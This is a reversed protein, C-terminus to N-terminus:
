RAQLARKIMFEVNENANKYEIKIHPYHKKWIRFIDDAFAQGVVEVGKFDLIVIKFKDLGAVVRRAQSRSIYETDAQYLKVIVKTKSFEYTGSETYERFVDEINTESDFGITFTVKTGRAMKINRIFIDEIKNNFILKKSGSKFVLTDAVKSTFFIGEGSHAEPATTEKGKLLNQIAELESSLKKKKMINNFIGVGGDSVEFLIGSSDSKMEVTIKESRSHEIANNLMETFGYQLIREVNKPLQFFIGTEKKIEELVEDENLDHNRYVRYFKQLEQKASRIKEPTASIYRAKNARGVLVIAGEDRLEQFFKNVYARSFGTEKVIESARVEGQDKIKKLILKKVNM